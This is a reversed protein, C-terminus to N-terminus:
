RLLRSEFTCPAAWESDANAVGKKLPPTLACTRKLQKQRIGWVLRIVLDDRYLNLVPPLAGLGTVFRDPTSVLLAVLHIDRGAGLREVM